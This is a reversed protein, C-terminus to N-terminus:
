HSVWRVNRLDAAPLARGSAFTTPTHGELSAHANSRRIGNGAPIEWDFDSVGNWLEM